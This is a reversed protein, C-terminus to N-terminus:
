IHLIRVGVFWLVQPPEIVYIAPRSLMPPKPILNASFIPAGPVVNLSFSGVNNSFPAIVDALIWM